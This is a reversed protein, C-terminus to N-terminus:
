QSAQQQKSAPEAIQNVTDTEYRSMQFGKIRLEHNQSSLLNLFSNPSTQWHMCVRVHYM